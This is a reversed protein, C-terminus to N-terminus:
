IRALVIPTQEAEVVARFFDQLEGYREVPVTTDKQIFARDYRFLKEEADFSLTARYSGFDSEIFIEPEFEDPGYAVPIYLVASEELMRSRLRVPLSRKAESYPNDVIRDLIAPKFIMLVNQMQKIYAKYGFEITNRYARDGLLDDQAAVIKLVPSPNGGAAFRSAVDEIYEKENLSNFKRRESVAAYGYRTVDMRGVLIGNELVEAKIERRIKNQDPDSLPLRVLPNGGPKGVVALGGQAEFPIEGIPSNNWTPDIFLLRGLNEDQYVAPTDISDDVKVATICHNFYFPGPLNEDVNDNDTANLTVIYSDIGVVKLLARLLTSKDKCDGWRLRFTESAPRPTYGGGNGLELAVHEYNVAKAYEGLAQIKEWDSAADKTLEKATAVIADDPEAMPDSVRASFGALDEWSNFNLNTFRLRSGEPPTITVIIHQRKAASSPSNAEYEKSLIDASEWTVTNETRTTEPLGGFIHEEVKWGPPASVTLRSMGVPVQSQFRWYYQTFITSRRSEYEYAFVDGTRTENWGDVIVTRSESELTLGSTNSVEREDSKKYKYVDGNAHLTWAKIRPRTGSSSYYSARAKARWREQLDLIRIAYRVTEHVRGDELVEYHAEDWIVECNPKEDAHRPPAPREVAAEVWDPLKPKAHAVAVLLLAAALAIVGFRSHRTVM